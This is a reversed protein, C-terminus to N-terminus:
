LANSGYNKNIITQQIADSVISLGFLTLVITILPLSPDAGPVLAVLDTSKRYEHYIHYLGCTIISLFFWAVFSYKEQALMTNLAAMQKYQVYLNFLGLTLITLIIDVAINRVHDIPQTGIVPQNM